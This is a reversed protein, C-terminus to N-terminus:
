VQLYHYEVHTEPKREHLTVWTEQLYTKACDEYKTRKVFVWGVPMAKGNSQDMYVKGTCRGYESMFGRYLKGKDTYRTKYVGSDGCSYHETANIWEESVLIGAPKNTTPM